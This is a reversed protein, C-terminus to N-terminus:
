LAGAVVPLRASVRVGGLASAGVSFEGGFLSVRERIGLLGHGDSSGASDPARMGIGDDAVEITVVEPECLVKVCARSAHAHRLTNTLGEQVIRYVTLDLAASIDSCDGEVALDVPLGAERVKAVLAELQAIGPQPALMPQEKDPRLVGLLRRMEVLSERGSREIKALTEADASGEARAGAAQVVVVSLNHSVVDHLERALRAREEAIAQMSQAELQEARDALAARERRQRVLTGILWFAVLGIAFFAGAWLESAKGSRIDHNEAAYIAYAALAAGLGAVAGRRSAYAAVSYAGVALPLMLEFGEPSNGTALAQSVLGALVVSWALLPRSRRWGLPASFFLPLCAVFWTPGAIRDGIPNPNVWTSIEVLACSVAAILIDLALPATRRRTRM